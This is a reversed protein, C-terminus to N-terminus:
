RLILEIDTYLIIVSMQLSRPHIISNNDVKSSYRHHGVCKSKKDVFVIHEGIRTLHCNREHTCDSKILSDIVEILLIKKSTKCSSLWLCLSVIRTGSFRIWLLVSRNTRLTSNNNVFIVFELSIKRIKAGFMLNCNGILPKGRVNIWWRTFICRM